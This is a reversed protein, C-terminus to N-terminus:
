LTSYFRACFKDYNTSTPKTQVGQTKHLHQHFTM